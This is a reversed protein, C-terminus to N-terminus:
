PAIHYGVIISTAVAATTTYEMAKAATLRIAPKFALMVNGNAGTYQLPVVVVDDEDHVKTTQATLSSIAVWDLYVSFGAAPQAVLETAIQASSSNDNANGSAPHDTTTLLQGDRSSKLRSIDGEAVAVGPTTGDMEYSVSGGLLPQIGTGVADHAVNGQITGILASGAELVVKGISASGAKLTFPSDSALIVRLANAGVGADAAIIATADATGDALKVLQYHRSSSDEDTALTSGGTGTNLTIDDAM